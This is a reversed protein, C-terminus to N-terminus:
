QANDPEQVTRGSPLTTGVNIIKSNRRSSPLSLNNLVTDSHRSSFIHFGFRWLSDLSLPLRGLTSNPKVPPCISIATLEIYTEDEDIQLLGHGHLWVSLDSVYRLLNSLSHGKNGDGENM